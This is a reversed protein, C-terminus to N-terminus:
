LGDNLVNAIPRQQNGDHHLWSKESSSVSKLPLCCVSDNKTTLTKPELKYFNNVILNSM